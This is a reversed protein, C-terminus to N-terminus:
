AAPRQKIRPEPPRMEDTPEMAAREQEALWEEVAEIRAMVQKGPKFTPPGYGAMRWKRYTSVTIGLYSAIGPGADTDHIYLCGPPPPTRTPM